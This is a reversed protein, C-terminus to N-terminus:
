RGELRWRCCCASGSKNSGESTGKITSNRRGPFDKGMKEAQHVEVYDVFARMKDM